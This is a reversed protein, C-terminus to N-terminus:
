YGSDDEFNFNNNLDSLFDDDVSSELGPNFSNDFGCVPCDFIDPALLSGCDLCFDHSM